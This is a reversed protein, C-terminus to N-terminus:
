VSVEYFVERGERTKEILGEERWDSLHNRAMTEGIDMVQEVKKRKFRQEKILEGPISIYNQSSDEDSEQEEIKEEIRENHEQVSEQIEERVQKVERDWNRLEGDLKLWEQRFNEGPERHRARTPYSKFNKVLTEPTWLYFYHDELGKIREKDQKSFQERTREDLVTQIGKATNLRGTFLYNLQSRAIDSLEEPNQTDIFVSVGVQRSEKLFEEIIERFAESSGGNGNEDKLLKHGERIFIALYPEVEGQKLLELIRQLVHVVTFKTIKDSQVQATELIMRRDENNLERYLDLSLPSNKSTVLRHDALEILSHQIPRKGRKTPSSIKIGSSSEIYDQDPLEESLKLLEAVNPSDMDQIDNIMANFLAEHSQSVDGLLAKLSDESLTKIPITFPQVPEPQTPNLDQTLPKYIKGPYARPEPNEPNQWIEYNSGGPLASFSGEIKSSFIDIVKVDEKEQFIEMGRELIMSKGTGSQGTVGARVPKKSPHPFKVQKM